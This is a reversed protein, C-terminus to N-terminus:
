SVVKKWGDPNLSQYLKVQRASEEMERQEAAEKESVEPAQAPFDERILEFLKNIRELEDDADFMGVVMHMVNYYTKELLRGEMKALIGELEERSKFYMEKIFQYEKWDEYFSILKDLGPKTGKGLKNQWKYLQYFLETLAGRSVEMYGSIVAKGLSVAVHVDQSAAFLKKLDLRM